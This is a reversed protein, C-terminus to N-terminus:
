RRRRSGNRHKKKKEERSREKAAAALQVLRLTQSVAMWTQLPAVAVSILKQEVCNSIAGSRYFEDILRKM